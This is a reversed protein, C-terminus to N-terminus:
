YLDRSPPATANVLVMSVASSQGLMRHFRTGKVRLIVMLGLFLAVFSVATHLLGLGDLGRIGFM